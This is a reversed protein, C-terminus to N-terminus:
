LGIGEVKSLPWLSTSVTVRVALSPLPLVCNQVKVTVKFSTVLGPMVQGALVVTAASPLQLPVIPVCEGKATLSLQVAMGVTVCLGAGAVTSLPWLSISVTVRVALSPLPFVCNQVKVTVKFSTVGGLM